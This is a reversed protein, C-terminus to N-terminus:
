TGKGVTQLHKIDDGRDSFCLGPVYAFHREVAQNVCIEANDM